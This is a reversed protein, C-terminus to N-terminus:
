PFQPAENSAVTYRASGYAATVRYGGYKNPTALYACAYEREATSGAFALFSKKFSGSVWAYIFAEPKPQGGDGLQAPFHSQGAKITRANVRQAERNWTTRCRKRDLYVYLLAKQTAAGRATVSFPHGSFVSSPARVRVSYGSAALATVSALVTLVAVGPILSQISKGM